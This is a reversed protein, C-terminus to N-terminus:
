LLNEECREEHGPQEYGIRLAQLCNICLCDDDQPSIYNMTKGVAADDPM